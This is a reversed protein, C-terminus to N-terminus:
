FEVGNFKAKVVKWLEGEDDLKDSPKNEDFLPLLMAFSTNGSHENVIKLLYRDKYEGGLQKLLEIDSAGVFVAQPNNKTAYKDATRKANNVVYEWSEGKTCEPADAAIATMFFAFILSIAFFSLLKTKMTM